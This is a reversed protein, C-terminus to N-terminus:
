KLYWDRVTECVAKLREDPIEERYVASMGPVIHGMIYDVAVQDKANGGITEFTHRLAYFTQRIGLKRALKRFEASIPNATGSKAWPQGCRTIFVIGETRDGVIPRLAAITEPWLWARREVGTKPRPYNAWGDALDLHEIKLSGCDHNGYGCNVGLLVMASLQPLASAVILRLDDAKFLKKPQNAKHLRMTKATPKKFSPGFRMPKDILGDDYLFKFAVRVRTVFGAVTHPSAGRVTAKLRAFDRPTVSSVVTNAGLTSVVVKCERKYDEYSRQVIEGAKVRKLRDSLFFNMADRLRLAHPDPLPDEGALLDEKVRNWEKLAEEPTAWRPGIRYQKGKVKRVWYGKPHPTLPFDKYPKELKKLM